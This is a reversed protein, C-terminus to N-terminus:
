YELADALGLRFTRGARGHVGPFVLWQRNAYILTHQVPEQQPTPPQLHVHIVEEAGALRRLFPNALVRSRLTAATAPTFLTSIIRYREAEDLEGTVAHAALRERWARAGKQKQFRRGSRRGTTGKPPRVRGVVPAPSDPGDAM